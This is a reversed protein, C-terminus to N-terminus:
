KTTGTKTDEIFRSLSGWARQLTALYIERRKYQKNLFLYRENWNDMVKEFHLTDQWLKVLRPKVENHIDILQGLRTTFERLERIRERLTVRISPYRM